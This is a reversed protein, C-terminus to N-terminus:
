LDQELISALCSNHNLFLCGSPPALKFEWKRRAQHRGRSHEPHGFAGARLSRSPRGSKDALVLGRERLVDRGNELTCALGPMPRIAHRCHGKQRILIRPRPRARNFLLDHLTVNWWPENVPAHSDVLE